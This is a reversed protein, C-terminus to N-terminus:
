RRAKVRGVFQGFPRGVKRSTLRIVSFTSAAMRFYGYAMKVMEGKQDVVGGTWGAIKGEKANVKLQIPYLGSVDNGNDNVVRRLTVLDGVDFTLDSQLRFTGDSLIEYIPSRPSAVLKARFDWKALQNAYLELANTFDRSPSYEGGVVRADPIGRLIVNRTNTAGGAGIKCLLSLTPFDQALGARGPYRTGRTQARTAPFVGQYRQGIVSCGNGLLGARASCLYEFDRQVVDNFAGDFLVSESWGATRVPRGTDSPDSSWSILMTCKLAM